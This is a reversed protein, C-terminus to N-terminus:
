EGLVGQVAQMLDQAKYPKEFYAVAGLEEAKERFGRQKSATLFIIPTLRPVQMQIREAVLFGNGAPMSIDLLVLDPLIKKCMVVGALADYAMSAEYGAGKMRIALAMAIARDDEIILINKM